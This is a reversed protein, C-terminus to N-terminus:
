FSSGQEKKKALQEQHEKKITALTEPQQLLDLATKALLEAAIAISALGKESRAAAKFETSHGAIYTDSISVTPQITPIVQSVNGVDSSGLSTRQQTEIEEDPIGLEQLHEFFLEDFAPTVVVDDVANQFLGFEYSTGTSLAAGKVINEVKQSVEDLTERNAARLYFRGAAYEPIVNAAVGGDTIIGHINVDKPLHLRLGNIGNFVQILAELANIGKEPAGAAHSAVGYFKIDVPDNALSETTKGYRYAPHVCLAADVDEFFGERVFSGKASGNEGGEEGPTGYVRIEGGFENTWEKVASAALVSYTGFLNHGCAHGIGPLADFEALFVLTPGPKGSAYRADFGTRHGAVEKEVTFGEKELQKILAESSFFEYNSVEPHDHITLALEQYEPLREAIFEKVSTTTQTTSM